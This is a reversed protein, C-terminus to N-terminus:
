DGVPSWQHIDHSVLSAWCHHGDKPFMFGQQTSQTSSLHGTYQHKSPVVSLILSFSGNSTWGIASGWTLGSHRNAVYSPLGTFVARPQVPFYLFPLLTRLCERTLCQIEPLADQVKQRTRNKQGALLIGSLAPINSVKPGRPVIDTASGPVGM